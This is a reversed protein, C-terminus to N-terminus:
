VGKDKQLVFGAKRGTETISLRATIIDEPLSIPDHVVVYDKQRLERIAEAWARGKQPPSKVSVGLTFEHELSDAYVRRLLREAIPALFVHM